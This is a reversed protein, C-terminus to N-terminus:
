FGARNQNIAGGSDIAANAIYGVRASAEFYFAGDPYGIIERQDHNCVVYLPMAM